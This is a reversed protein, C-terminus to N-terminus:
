GTFHLFSCDYLLLSCVYRIKELFISGRGEVSSEVSLEARNETDRSLSRGLDQAAGTLPTVSFHIHKTHDAMNSQPWKRITQLRSFM